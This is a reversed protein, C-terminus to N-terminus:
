GKDSNLFLSAGKELLTMTPYPCEGGEIGCDQKRFNFGLVSCVVCEVVGCLNAVSHCEFLGEGRSMEGSDACFGEGGELCVEGFVPLESRQM